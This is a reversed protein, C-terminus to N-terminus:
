QQVGKLPLNCNELYFFSASHGLIWFHSVNKRLSKYKNSSSRPNSCHLSLRLILLNKNSFNRLIVGFIKKKFFVFNESYKSMKLSKEHLIVFTQCCFLYTNLTNPFHANRNSIPIKCFRSRIRVFRLQTIHLVTSESRGKGLEPRSEKSLWVLQKCVFKFISYM